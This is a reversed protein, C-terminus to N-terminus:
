IRRVVVSHLRIWRAQASAQFAEPAGKVAVIDTSASAGRSARAAEGGCRALRVGPSTGNTFEIGLAELARQVKDRTSAYGGIPQNGSAEM